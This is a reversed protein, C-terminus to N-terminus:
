TAEEEFLVRLQSIVERGRHSSRLRRMVSLLLRTGLPPKPIGSLAVPSGVHVALGVLFKGGNSSAGRALLFIKSLRSRQMHLNIM